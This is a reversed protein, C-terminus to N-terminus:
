FLLKDPVRFQKMKETLAYINAEDRERRKEGRARLAQKIEHRSEKRQYTKKPKQGFYLSQMYMDHSMKKRTDWIGPDVVEERFASAVTYVNLLESQRDTDVSKLARERFGIM